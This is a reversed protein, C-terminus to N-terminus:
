WHQNPHTVLNTKLWSKMFFIFLHCFGKEKIYIFGMMKCCSIPHNHHLVDTWCCYAIKCITIKILCNQCRLEKRCLYWESQPYPLAVVKLILSCRLLRFSFAMEV